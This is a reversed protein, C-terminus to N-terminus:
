RYLSNARSKSARGRCRQPPTGGGACPWTSAPPWAAGTRGALQDAHTLRTRPTIDYPPRARARGRARDHAPTGLALNLAARAVRRGGRDRVRVAGDQLARAPPPASLRSSRVPCSTCLRATNHTTTSAIAAFSFARADKTCLLPTTQFLKPPSLQATHRLTNHLALLANLQPPLHVFPRPKFPCKGRGPQTQTMGPQQM